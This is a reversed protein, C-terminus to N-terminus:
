NFLLRRLNANIYILMITFVLYDGISFYILLESKAWNQGVQALTYEEATFYLYAAIHILAIANRRQNSSKLLHNKIEILLVLMSIVFSVQILESSNILYLLIGVIAAVSFQFVASKQSTIFFSTFVTASFSYYVNQREIPLYSLWNDIILISIYGLINLSKKNARFTQPNLFYFLLRIATINLLLNNTWFNILILVKV